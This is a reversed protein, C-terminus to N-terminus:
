KTVEGLNDITAQSGTKMRYLGIADQYNKGCIVTKHNPSGGSWVQITYYRNSVAFLDLIKDATDDVNHGNKDRDLIIKVIETKM